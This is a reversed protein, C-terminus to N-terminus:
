YGYSHNSFRNWIEQSPFQTYSCYSRWRIRWVSQWVLVIKTQLDMHRKSSKFGKANLTRKIRFTNRHWNSKYWALNRVNELWIEPWLACQLLDRQEVTKKELAAIWKLIQVPSKEHVLINHAVFGVMICGNILMIVVLKGGSSCTSIECEVGILVATVMCAVWDLYLPPRLCRKNDDTPM